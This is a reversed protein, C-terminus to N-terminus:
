LLCYTCFSISELDEKYTFKREYSDYAWIEETWLLHYIIQNIDYFHM